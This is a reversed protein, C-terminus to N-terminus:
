LISHIKKILEDNGYVFKELNHQIKKYLFVDNMLLSIAYDMEKITTILGNEGHQIFEPAAGYDTTIIPIGLVKAENVVYPCAESLSSSILLNSNLIYPYPNFKSGLYIVYNQVKYASINTLLTDLENKNGDGLIYWKFKLNQAKLKAAIEPLKTFQKVPDLRGISVITFDNTDFRDDDIKSKSNLRVFEEDVINYVYTTNSKLSPYNEIFAKQTFESVCVVTNFQQYIHLEDKQALKRYESYNSHIWAVKNTTTNLYSCFLTPMGEQFAVVTDYQKENITKLAKQTLLPVLKDLLKLKRALVILVKRIFIKIFATNNVSKIQEINSGFLLLSEQYPLVKCNDLSVNDSSHYFMPLVDIKDNWKYHLLLNQLSRITGGGNKLSPIIFLIRKSM